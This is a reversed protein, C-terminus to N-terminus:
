EEVGNQEVVSWEGMDLSDVIAAVAAMQAEISARRAQERAWAERARREEEVRVLEEREALLDYVPKRIAAALAEALARGGRFNIHTYDKAAWGDAVFKPMGGLAAMAEATNWFAAGCSDAAARQYQSLADVTGIPKYGEGQTDRVWRDSVGMVMIAANPFCREAYAIMDRLQDRYKSYNRREAQMINLGYQLVVLDYGLLEDIQRNIHAGTGFIAHGNNSRVSFNDIMVGSDGELSVGYCLVEGEVVKIALDTIPAEVYIERLRSDAELEVEYRLTDSLSLEVRSDAESLLIIRARGVSDLTEFADTVSWQTRAGAGGRALYGSVFFKDRLEEPASKPKMVSYASWGSSTRRITRRVTAFPIDCAVFGVGRGGFIQQLESRLDSTLIDGEVFSDGLFAIRVAEGSALKDVFRDFRSVELTDFDEIAVIPRSMDPMVEESRPVRRVAEGEREYIWEKRISPLPEVQEAEVEEVYPELTALEHELREIDASYEVVQEEGVIDELLSVKAFHMGFLEFPPILAFLAVGVVVALTLVFGRLTYDREKM